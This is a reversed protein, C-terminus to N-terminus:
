CQDALRLRIIKIVKCLEKIMDDPVNRPNYDWIRYFGSFPYDSNFIKIWANLHTTHFQQEPVKEDKEGEPPLPTPPYFEIGKPGISKVRRLFDWFRRLLSKHPPFNTYPRLNLNESYALPKILKDSIV